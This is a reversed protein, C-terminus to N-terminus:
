PSPDKNGLLATPFVTITFAAAMLLITGIEDWFNILGQDNVASM